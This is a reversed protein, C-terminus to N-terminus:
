CIWYALAFDTASIRRGPHARRNRCQARSVLGSRWRPIVPCKCHAVALALCGAIGRKREPNTFQPRLWSTGSVAPMSGVTVRASRPGRGRFGLFVQTKCSELPGAAFPGTPGRHVEAISDMQSYCPGNCSFRPCSKARRLSACQQPLLHFLRQKEPTKRSEVEGFGTPSPPTCTPSACGFPLNLRWRKCSTSSICPDRLRPNCPLRKGAWGHLAAPGTPARAPASNASCARVARAPSPPCTSRCAM